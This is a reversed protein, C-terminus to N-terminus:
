NWVCIHSGGKEEKNLSKLTGTVGLIFDYLLPVEAFSVKGIGLIFGLNSKMQESGVNGMEYEKMYAFMTHYGMVATTTLGDFYKYGIRGDVVNYDHGGNGVAKAHVLMAYMEDRLLEQMDVSFNRLCREAEFSGVVEIPDLTDRYKWIFKILAEINDDSLLAGPNFTNGYFESNFFVDVEDILLVRMPAVDHKDQTSDMHDTSSTKRFFSYIVDASYNNSAFESAVENLTGYRISEAVGFHFFMEFFDKHDRGSLYQSYSVCDVEFNFLALVISTVGLVISKGEGTKVEVLQNSLQKYYDACSSLMLFIAVVQAPHPKMLFNAGDEVSSLVIDNSNHLTWYAFIHAMMKSIQVSYGLTYDRALSRTAWVLHDLSKAKKEPEGLLPLRDMVLKNYTKEFVEYMSKFSEVCPCESELGDLVYDITQRATVRNFMETKGSEFCKHESLLQASMVADEGDMSSLKLYLDLLFKGGDRSSEMSSQILADISSDIKERWLGLDLSSKKLAIIKRALEINDTEAEESIEKVKLLFVRTADELMSKAYNSLYADVGEFAKSICQLHLVSAHISAFDDEFKLFTALMKKLRSEMTETEDKVKKLADSLLSSYAEKDVHKKLSKAQASSKVSKSIDEYLVTVDYENLPIGEQVHFSIADIKQSLDLLRQIVRLRLDEYRPFKSASDQLAVLGHSSSEQAVVLRSGFSRLARPSSSGFWLDMFLSLDRFEMDDMCSDIHSLLSDISNVVSDHTADFLQVLFPSKDDIALIDRALSAEQLTLRAFTLYLALENRLNVMIINATSRANSSKSMSRNLRDSSEVLASHFKQVLRSRINVFNDVRCNGHLRDVIWDGLKRINFGKREEVFKSWNDWKNQSSLEELLVAASFGKQLQVLMAEGEACAHAMISATDGKDGFTWSEENLMDAMNDEVVDQFARKSLPLSELSPDEREWTDSTELSDDELCSAEPVQLFSRAEKASLITGSGLSGVKSPTAIKDVNPVPVDTQREPILPTEERAISFYPHVMHYIVNYVAIIFFFFVYLFLVFITQEYCSEHFQPPSSNSTKADRGSPRTSPRRTKRLVQNNNGGKAKPTEENSVLEESPTRETLSEDDSVWQNLTMTIPQLEVWLVSVLIARVFFVPLGDLQDTEM